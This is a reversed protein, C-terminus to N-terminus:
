RVKLRALATALNSLSLVYDVAGAAIAAGPMGFVTSSSEDQAYTTGGTQRIALLGATGDDGMGTMVVGIAAAACANAVSEFLVNISPCYRHQGQEYILRTRLGGAYRTVLLHAGGPALHVVGPSLKLGDTVVCVPLVTSKDLWRALGSTFGDPMHQTIVIPLPYDAPFDHLMMSLASPGGASAGIAVIEAADPQPVARPPPPAPTAATGVLDWRRVVHVKSMAILTNVLQRQKAPFDPAHRNGPKEVVALAGAQLAQFALDVEREVLGSVVVVPTPCRNMIHRTAELGDMGPMRIDMSIVDPRLKEVQQLVDEGDRAEGAVRIGPAADIMDALHRRMTPSDDVILVSVIKATTDM